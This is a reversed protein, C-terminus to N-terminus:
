EKLNEHRHARWGGSGSVRRDVLMGVGGGIEVL